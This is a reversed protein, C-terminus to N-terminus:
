MFIKVKNWHYMPEDQEHTKNTIESKMLERIIEMDVEDNWGVILVLIKSSELKLYCSVNGQWTWM